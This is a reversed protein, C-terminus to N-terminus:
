VLRSVNESGRDSKLDGRDQVVAGTALRETSLTRSGYKVESIVAYKASSCGILTGM